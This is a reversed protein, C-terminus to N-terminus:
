YKCDVKMCSQEKRWDGQKGLEWLRELLGELTLSRMSRLTIGSLISAFVFVCFFRNSHCKTGEWRLARWDCHVPTHPIQTWIVMTIARQRGLSGPPPQLTPPSPLPPLSAAVLVCYSSPFPTSSMCFAAETNIMSLNEAWSLTLDVILAAEISLVCNFLGVSVEAILVPQCTAPFAEKVKLLAFFLVFSHLNM